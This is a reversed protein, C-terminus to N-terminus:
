GNSEGKITREIIALKAEAKLLQNSAERWNKKWSDSCKNTAKTIEDAVIQTWKDEMADRVEQDVGDLGFGSRDNLDAVIKEVAARASM